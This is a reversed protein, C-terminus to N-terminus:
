IKAKNWVNQSQKIIEANITSDYVIDLKELVALDKEIVEDVAWLLEALEAQQDKPPLLFEYNALDKWNVSPNVSGKSNRISHESFGESLMVFPLLRKDIKKENPKIVFTTNSTI